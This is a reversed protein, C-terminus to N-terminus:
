KFNDYNKALKLSLLKESRILMKTSFGARVGDFLRTRTQFDPPGFFRASRDDRTLVGNYAYQARNCHKATYMCVLLKSGNGLYRLGSKSKFAESFFQKAHFCLLSALPKFVVFAAFLQFALKMTIDISMLFRKAKSKLQLPFMFTLFGHFQKADFLLIRQCFIVRFM